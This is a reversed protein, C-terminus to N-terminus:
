STAATTDARPTAAVPPREEISAQRMELEEGALMFPGPTAAREGGLRSEVAVLIAYAMPGLSRLPQHQNQRTGLRAQALRDIGVARLADILMAIEVGYGVPFALGELLERRAALEGALPQSFGALEPFHLNLLPRAMLETVRGGGGAIVSGPAATFPREFAGKVLALDGNELLPGLLGLVFAPDPNATDSDLFVVIEGSTAALSRWMADGKGLCPGHDRRLDDQQVVEVGRRLCTAATGDRSDADIVVIEDVLGASRLPLAVDLVAGITAAVERAPLVVSVSERKEALLGELTYTSADYTRRTFWDALALDRALGRPARGELRGSTSVAVARPRVIPVQHRRLVTELGEDELAERPDLGGIAAYIAATVAMSAGSFQHHEASPEFRRVRELRETAQLSRTRHVRRDLGAADDTAIAVRGGIAQAGEAIADLQARLWREDVTSDADTTAVLGYPRGLSLLRECALDMGLKRAAGAGREPSELIWLRLAPNLRGTEIARERTADACADLVLLLEYADASVGRQDALAEICAVIHEQENRAPVVVSAELTEEPAPIM